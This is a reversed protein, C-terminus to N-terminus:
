SARGWPAAPAADSPPASASRGRGTAGVPRPAFRPPMARAGLPSPAGVTAGDPTAVGATTDRAAAADSAIPARALSDLRAQRAAAEARCPASRGAVALGTVAGVPAGIAPGWWSPSGWGFGRQRRDDTGPPRVLGDDPLDRWASALTGLLAGAVTWGLAERRQIQACSRGTDDADLGRARVLASCGALALLPLACLARPVVPARRARSSSPM